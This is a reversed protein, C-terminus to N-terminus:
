VPRKSNANGLVRGGKSRHLGKVDYMRFASLAFRVFVSSSGKPEKASICTFWSLRRLRSREAVQRPFASRFLNGIGGQALFGCWIGTNGNGDYALRGAARLSCIRLARLVFSPNLTRYDTVWHRSANSATGFGGKLGIKSQPRVLPKSSSAIRRLRPASGAPHARDEDIPM